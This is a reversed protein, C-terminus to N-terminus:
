KKDFFALRKKRLDDQSLILIALETEDIKNQNELQCMLTWEELTINRFTNICISLDKDTKKGVHTVYDCNTMVINKEWPGSRMCLAYFTSLITWSVCTKKIKNPKKYKSQVALFSGNHEVIIDIGMDKRQLSVIELIYDPADKLLWVNNYKKVYKLYLVCFEEFIDGKIKKNDRNKLEFINHAPKAYYIQCQNVFEDFLNNPSKLLVSYLLKSLEM